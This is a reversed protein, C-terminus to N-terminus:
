GKVPSKDKLWAKVLTYGGYLPNHGRYQINQVYLGVLRQSQASGIEVVKDGREIEIGKDVLDTKLFCLYGDYLVEKGGPEAKVMNQRDSVQAFLDIPQGYRPKGRPERTNPNQVTDGLRKRIKVPTPHRLRPLPMNTAM